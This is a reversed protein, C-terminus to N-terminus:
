EAYYETIGSLTGDESQARAWVEDCHTLVLPVNAPWPLEQGNSRNKYYWATDVILTALSRKPDASLIPQTTTTDIDVVVVPGSRAPLNYVKVQGDVRVPVSPVPLDRQQLEDLTPNPPDEILQPKVDAM